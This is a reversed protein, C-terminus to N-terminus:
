SKVFWTKSSHAKDVSEAIGKAWGDLASEVDAWTSWPSDNAVRSGQSRSVVVADIRISVSERFTGEVTVGGVSLAVPILVSTVNAVANPVKISSLVFSMRMTKESPTNTITYGKNELEKTLSEAFYNQIRSLDETKLRKVSADRSDLKVPDIIFQRNVHDFLSPNLEHEPDELKKDM